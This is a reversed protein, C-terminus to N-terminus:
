GGEIGMEAIGKVIMLLEEKNQPMLEELLNFDPFILIRPQILYHLSVRHPVEQSIVSQAINFEMGRFM